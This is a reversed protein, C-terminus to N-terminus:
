FTNLFKQQRFIGDKVYSISGREFNTNIGYEKLLQCGIIAENALQPSIM